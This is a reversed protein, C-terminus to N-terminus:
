TRTGMKDVWIQNRKKAKEVYEVIQRTCFEYMAEHPKMEYLMKYWEVTMQLCEDPLDMPLTLSHRTVNPTVKGTDATEM